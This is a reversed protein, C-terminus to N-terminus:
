ISSLSSPTPPVMDGQRVPGALPRPPSQSAQFYCLFGRPQHLKDTVGPWAGKSGHM